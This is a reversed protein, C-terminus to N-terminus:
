PRQDVIGNVPALFFRHLCRHSYTYFFRIFLFLVTAIAEMKYAAWLATKEMSTLEKRTLSIQCVDNM